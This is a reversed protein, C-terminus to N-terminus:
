PELAPFVQHQMRFHPIQQSYFHTPSSSHKPAKAVQHHQKQRPVMKARLPKPASSVKTSGGEYVLM